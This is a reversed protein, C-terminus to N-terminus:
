VVERDDGLEAASLRRLRPGWYLHEFRAPRNLPGGIDDYVDRVPRGRRDSKARLREVEVAHRQYSAPLAGYGGHKNAFALRHVGVRVFFQELAAVIRRRRRPGQGRLYIGNLLAV